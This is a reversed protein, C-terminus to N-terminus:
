TGRTGDGCACRNRASLVMEEYGEGQGDGGSSAAAEREGLAADQVYRLGHELAYQAKQLERGLYAAHDLRTVWGEEVLTATVLAGDRGEVVHAQRGDNLYHECVIVGRERDPIIVFFGAPDLIVRKPARAIVPTVTTKDAYAAPLSPHRQNDADTATAAIRAPETEGVLNV